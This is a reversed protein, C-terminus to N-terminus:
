EKIDSISHGIHKLKDQRENDIEVFVLSAALALCNCIVRFRGRAADRCVLAYRVNTM